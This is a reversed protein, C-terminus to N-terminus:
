RSHHLREKSALKSRVFQMSFTGKGAKKEGM